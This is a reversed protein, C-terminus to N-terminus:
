VLWILTVRISQDLVLGSNIHGLKNYKGSQLGLGMFYDPQGISAGERWVCPFLFSSTTTGTIQNIAGVLFLLRFPIYIYNFLTIMERLVLEM